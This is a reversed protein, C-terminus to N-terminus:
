NKLIEEKKTIFYSVKIAGYILMASCIMTIACMGLYIAMFIWAGAAVNNEKMPKDDYQITQHSSSSAKANVVGYMAICSTTFLLFAFALSLVGLIIGGNRLSICFCCNKLIAM